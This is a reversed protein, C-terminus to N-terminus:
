KKGLKCYLKVAIIIMDMKHTTIDNTEEWMHLLRIIDVINECVRNSLIAPKQKYIIGMFPLCSDSLRRSVLAPSQIHIIVYYFAIPEFM